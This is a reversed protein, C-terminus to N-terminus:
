RRGESWIVEFTSYVGWRNRFNEEYYDNARKLLDKGVFFDRSLRNAGIDKIWKMLAMMDSFYIKRPERTIRADKFGAAEVAEVVDQKGVLRDILLAGNDTAAELAMFLEEFTNRGFLTCCFVGEEKLVSYCQKFAESLHPVWQYALNSVIVDFAEEKFPLAEANAQVIKFRGEKKQAEEIMGAAFDLGIVEANPFVETLGKTLWGTGMGVDLVKACHEQSSVKRMLEQGIDQHLHSLCDYQGAADSFSKQIKQDLLSVM